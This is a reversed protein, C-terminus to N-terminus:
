RFVPCCLCLIFASLCGHTWHIRVSSGLTQAPRLGRPWQPRNQVLSHAQPQTVCRRLEPYKDNVTEPQLKVNSLV